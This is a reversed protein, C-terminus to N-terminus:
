PAEEHEGRSIKKIFTRLTPGYNMRKAMDVIRQVVKAAGREEAQGVIAALMVGVRIYNRANHSGGKCSCLSWDGAVYANGCQGLPEGLLKATAERIERTVEPM